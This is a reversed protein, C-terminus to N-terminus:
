ATGSEIRHRILRIVDSAHQLAERAMSEDAQVPEGIPPYRLRVGYPNLTIAADSLTAMSPDIQQCEHLLLELDHTKLLPRGHAALFAKLAKEIAQQSPYAANRPYTSEAAMLQMASGLDDEAVELQHLAEPLFGPQM